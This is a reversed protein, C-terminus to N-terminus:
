RLARRDVNERWHPTADEFSQWYEEGDYGYGLETAYVVWVLWHKSLPERRKLRDHLLSKIEEIEAKNLDHELAFLPIGTVAHSAALEQFHKELRAQWDDLLM